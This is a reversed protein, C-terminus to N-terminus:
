PTRAPSCAELLGRAWPRDAAPLDIAAGVLLVLGNAVFRHMEEPNARTVAQVYGYVEDFGRWVAERVESHECAAFSQLTALLLRRDSTVLDGYASGLVSFLEAEGAAARGAALQLVELTRRFVREVVALFLDMKTGYLRFLYPQSIGARRAIEDTSAGHLGGMAFETIAAELIAERREAATHRPQGTIRNM